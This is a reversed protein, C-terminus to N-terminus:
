GDAIDTAQVLITSLHNWYKCSSLKSALRFLELTKRIIPRLKSVFNLIYDVSLNGVSSQHIKIIQFFFITNKILTFYTANCSMTVAAHTHARQTM